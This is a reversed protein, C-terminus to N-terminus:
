FMSKGLGKLIKREESNSLINFNDINDKGWIIKEVLRKFLRTKWMLTRTAGPIEVPYLPLSVGYIYSFLM